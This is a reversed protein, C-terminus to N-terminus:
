ERYQQFNYGIELARSNLEMFKKPLNDNMTKLVADRSFPLFGQKIAVGLMVVNLVRGNGAQACLKQGDIFVVQRGSSELYQLIDNVQYSTGGLSSTVPIIPQTNILLRGGPKLFALNRVAEAPEFGIILDAKGAPIAPSCNKDGLRVHSVVCGGRQAMGITESTRAFCHNGIATQAIIKSALVTGQGGVGALLCDMRM